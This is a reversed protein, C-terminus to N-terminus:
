RMRLDNPAVWYIAGAHDDAVFLRGDPSFAVDTARNMTNGSSGFGRMFDMFTGVPRGAADTNAFVVRTGEWNRGVSYYSGHLAVFLGNNFPQPWHNPEWAMGFPTDNLPFTAIGPTVTSCDFPSGSNYPTNSNATICCPYGVEANTDMSVLKELAGWTRGGDDGLEAAVCLPQSPHCRVYMPNRLGTLVPVVPMGMATQRMVVGQGPRMRCTNSVGNVGMSTVVSGDQAIDVGHTWRSDPNAPYDLVVERRMPMEARLGDTYPTRYVKEATTFYVYGNRVALSHIDPINTAFMAIEATGDRNDDSAVLIGGVGLGEGGPTARGPAAIFLDGNPVVVITRPSTVRAFLRVMFGNPVVAGVVPAAPSSAWPTGAPPGAEGWYADAPTVDYNLGNQAQPCGAVSSALILLSIGCSFRNMCTDISTGRVSGM